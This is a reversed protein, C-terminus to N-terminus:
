NRESILKLNNFEKRIYYYKYLIVISFQIAFAFVLVYVGIIEHMCYVLILYLFNSLFCILSTKRYFGAVNFLPHIPSFSTSICFLFLYSLVFVKYQILTNDFIVADLFDFVMFLFLWATLSVINLSLFLKKISKKLNSYNKGAYMENIIPYLVQYIPMSVVSVISTIKKTIHYVALFDAGFFMSTLVKDFERSPLDMIPVLNLWFCHKFTSRIGKFSISGVEPKSVFNFAIFNFLLYKILESVAHIAILTDLDLKGFSYFYLVSLLKIIPSIVILMSLTFIKDKLRLVGQPWNIQTTAAILAVLAISSVDLEFYEFLFPLLLMALFLQIFFIAIDLLISNAVKTDDLNKVSLIYEWSRTNVVQTLILCFTIILVYEGYSEAGLSSLTIPIIIVGIGMAVMNAVSLNIAKKFASIIM